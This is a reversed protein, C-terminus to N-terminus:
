LVAYQREQARVLRWSSSSSYSPLSPVCSSFLLVKAALSEGGMRGKRRGVSL